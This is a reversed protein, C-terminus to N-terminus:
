KAGGEESEALKAYKWACDDTATWSTYGNDRACVVGNVYKSFIDEIGIKM